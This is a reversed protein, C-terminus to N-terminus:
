GSPYQPHESTIDMPFNSNKPDDETGSDHFSKKVSLGFEKM